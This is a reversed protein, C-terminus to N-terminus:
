AQAYRNREQNSARRLSIIRTLEGRETYIVFYLHDGIYGIASHRMEGYRPSPEILATSWEFFHIAEFDITHKDRNIQRKNEDWEYPM